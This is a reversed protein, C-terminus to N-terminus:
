KSKIRKRNAMYAIAICVVIAPVFLTFLNIPMGFASRYLYICCVATCFGLIYPMFRKM